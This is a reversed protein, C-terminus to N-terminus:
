KAGPRANKNLAREGRLLKGREQKLLERLAADYQQQSFGRQGGVRVVQDMQEALNRSVSVRHRGLHISRTPHLAGDTPLLIKNTRSQLDFGALDVLEHNKTLANKDSIIHHDQFGELIEQRSKGTGAFGGRGSAAGGRSGISCRSAVEAAFKAEASRTEGACLSTAKLGSEVVVDIAKVRTEAKPAPVGATALHPFLLAALVAVFRFIAWITRM